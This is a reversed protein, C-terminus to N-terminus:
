NKLTVLFSDIVLADVCGWVLHNIADEPTHVIPLGHRNFSTNLLVPVGTIRKFENILEWYLPNNEKFVVQSRATNDIHIAAPIKKASKTKLNDTLTMFPTGYDNELYESAHSSLIAPAFPMFWDREKLKSNIREKTELKRPDALVSRHGLARPGWEGKGQFWGIVKGSSIEKAVTRAVNDKLDKVIIKSGFNKLSKKIEKKSFECGLATSNMDRVKLSNQKKYFALAAGVAIGGDGPNPYVFISSVVKTKLLLANLKVNLFIGGAVATDKIGYKKTLYKFYKIAEDEFIKQAAWAIQEAGYEEIMWRLYRYSPTLRFYEPHSVGNIELWNKRANWKEGDFFPFFKILKNYAESKKGFAALGMTKGEGDNLKFGLTVTVAGYYLGLSSYVPIEEALRLKNNESIFVSGCLPKGKENLGYGDWAVVLCKEKGCYQYATEAHALYHSVTVLKENPLKLQLFSNFTTDRKPQDMGSLSLFVRTMLWLLVKKVGAYQFGKLYSFFLQISSLNASGSVFYNIDKITLNSNELAENLTKIPFHTDHKIRSSREESEAFVIEGDILLAASNDHNGSYHSTLGIIKM